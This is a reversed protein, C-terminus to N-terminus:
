SNNSKTIPQAFITEKEPIVLYFPFLNSKVKKSVVSVIPAFTLEL